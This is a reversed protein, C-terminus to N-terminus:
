RRHWRVAPRPERQRPVPSIQLRPSFHTPVPARPTHVLVMEAPLFHWPRCVRQVAPKEHSPPRCLRQKRTTKILPLQRPTPRTQLGPSEQTRFPVRATHLVTADTPAFHLPRYTLQTAPERQWPICPWRTHTRVTPRPMRQWPTPNNHRRPSSQTPLLACATHVLVKVAPAFQPPANVRQVDPKLHWCLRQRRMTPRPPSQLPVPSMHLLPSVHEPWPADATHRSVRAAPSLQLPRKTDHIEPDLHRPSSPLRTHTSVTLSPSRQRPSPRMQLAPRSQTPPLPCATHVLVAGAPALQPPANVRQEDPKLHWCLRHRRMTPRPPRQRPAPSTQRLPNLHRPSLSSRIQVRTATTPSPQLAREMLHLEPARHLPSSPSMTHLAVTSRPCRQQPAPFIHLTPSLQTPSLARAMQVRVTAAPALHVPRKVRQTAPNSHRPSRCFRQRLVTPKPPRHRPGPRSHRLSRAQKPLPFAPTHRRATEAPASQLPSKTRQTDPNRQRPVVFRWQEFITPSPAPHWPFPSVQASPNYQEPFPTCATQLFAIAALPSTAVPVRPCAHVPEPLAQLM